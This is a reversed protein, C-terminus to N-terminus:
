LAKLIMQYHERERRLEQPLFIDIEEQSIIDDMNIKLAKEARKYAGNTTIPTEKSILKYQELLTRKQEIVEEDSLVGARMESILATYDERLVLWKVANEKHIKELSQFDFKQFYLNIGTSILAIIATVIKFVSTQEDIVIALIGSTTLASIGIRICETWVRNNHYTDAQKEQIKHTWGCRGLLQEIEAEIIKKNIM